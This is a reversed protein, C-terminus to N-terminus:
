VPTEVKITIPMNFNYGDKSYTLTLTCSGYTEMQAGHMTFTTPNDLIGGSYHCDGSPTVATLAFGNTASITIPTDVGPPIESSPYVVVEPVLPKPANSISDDSDSDDACATIFVVCLATLFVGMIRRIM